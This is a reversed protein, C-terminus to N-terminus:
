SQCLRLLLTIDIRPRRACPTDVLMIITCALGNAEDLPTDLTIFTVLYEYVQTYSIFTDLNRLYIPHFESRLQRYTRTLGLLPRESGRWDPMTEPSSDCQHTTSTPRGMPAMLEKGAVAAAYIRNRIELFLTHTILIL